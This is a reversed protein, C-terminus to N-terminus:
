VSHGLLGEARGYRPLPDTRTRQPHPTPPHLLQSNVIVTDTPRKTNPLAPTSGQRQAHQSTHEAVQGGRAPESMM